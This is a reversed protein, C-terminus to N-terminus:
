LVYAMQLSKQYVIMCLLWSKVSYNQTISKKISVVFYVKSEFYTKSAGYLM